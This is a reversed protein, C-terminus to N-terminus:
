ACTEDKGRARRRRRSWLAICGVFLLVPFGSESGPTVSCGAGEDEEDDGPQRPAGSSCDLEECLQPATEMIWPLYADVRTDIGGHDCRENSDPGRSVIGALRRNGDVDLFGPGGSDGFCNQQEGPKSLFVEHEGVEVITAQGQTKRGAVFQDPDTMGYGVLGLQADAALSEAAEAPSLLMEYAVGTVPASLTVLGIDDWRGFEIPEESTLDLDFDPHSFTATGVHVASATNADDELTFSPLGDGLLLPHLCHAATLVVTPSILTGTCFFMGDEDLLAGTAPYSGDAATGGIVGQELQDIDDLAQECGLLSVGCVIGVALHAPKISTTLM